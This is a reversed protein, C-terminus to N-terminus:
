KVIWEKLTITKTEPDYFLIRKDGSGTQNTTTGIFNGYADSKFVWGRGVDYVNTVSKTESNFLLIGSTYQAAILCDSGIEYFYQWDNGASYPQTVTETSGDYMLMGIIRPTRQYESSFLIVNGIQKSFSLNGTATYLSTITNETINYSLVDYYEYTAHGIMKDGVFYWRNVRKGLSYIQTATKTINNYSVVGFGDRESTLLVVDDNVIKVYPTMLTTSSSGLAAYIDSLTLTDGNLLRVPQNTRRPPILFNQGIKTINSYADLALDVNESLVAIEETNVNYFLFQYPSKDNYYLIENEYAYVRFSYGSDYVSTFSHESANYRMIGHRSNSVSELMIAGNDYKVLHYYKASVFGGGASIISNDITNYILIDSANSGKILMENDTAMIFVNYGYGTGGIRTVTRAVKDYFYLGYTVNGAGILVGNPVEKFSSYSYGSGYVKVSTETKVDYEWIGAVKSDNTALLYIDESVKFTYIVSSTNWFEEPLKIIVDGGESAVLVMSKGDVTIKKVKKTTDIAM